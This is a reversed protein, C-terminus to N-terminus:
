TSNSASDDGLVASTGPKYNMLGRFFQVAGFIIAGWAVMYSGGGEAATYTGVTIAIGVLCIVAGMIM